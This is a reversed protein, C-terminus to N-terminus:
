VAYLLAKPSQSKFEHLQGVFVCQVPQLRLIQHPLADVQQVLNEDLGVFVSPGDDVLDHNGCEGVGFVFVFDLTCHLGKQLLRVQLLLENLQQLSEDEVAGVEGLVLM